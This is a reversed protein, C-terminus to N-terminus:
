MRLELLIAQIPSKRDFPIQRKANKNIGPGDATAARANRGFTLRRQAADDLFGVEGRLPAGRRLDDSLHEAAAAFGSQRQGRGVGYAPPDFRQQQGVQQPAPLLARLRFRHLAQARSQPTIIGSNLLKRVLRRTRTMACSTKSGIILISACVFTFIRNIRYIYGDV